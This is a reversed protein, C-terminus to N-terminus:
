IETEADESCTNILVRERSADKKKRIRHDRIQSPM